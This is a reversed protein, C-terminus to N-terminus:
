RTGGERSDDEGAPLQRPLNQSTVEIGNVLKDINNATREAAVQDGQLHYLELQLQLQELQFNRMQENYEVLRQPYEARTGWDFGHSWNDRELLLNQMASVVAPEDLPQIVTEAGDAATLSSIMSMLLLGALVLGWRQKQM